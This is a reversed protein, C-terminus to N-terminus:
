CIPSLNNFSFVNDEKDTAMLEKINEHCTFFLIQHGENSIEKLLNIAQKTRAIDFNVFTDDLIFPFAHEKSWISAVAFRLSLYLQEITAQSLEKPYYRVGDKHEVMLTQEEKPDLINVYNGDTLMNFYRTAVNLVNPLKVDRYYLLTKELLQHATQIFAWRKAQNTLKAKAIEYQQLVESYTSGNELVKISEELQSQKKYLERENTRLQELLQSIEKKREVWDSEKYWDEENFHYNVFYQHLQGQLDLLKKEYDTGLQYNKEKIRFAEEDNVEAFTYLQQKKELLSRQEMELLEWENELEMKSELLQTEKVINEELEKQKTALLYFIDSDTEVKVNLSKELAKRNDNWRYLEVELAKKRERLQEFKEVTSKLLSAKDFAEEMYVVPFSKFYCKELWIQWEQQVVYQQEEWQEYQEIIRDYNKENQQFQLKEKMLIQLIHEDELLKKEMHTVEERNFKVEDVQAKLSVVSERLKEREELLVSASDGKFQWFFLFVAVLLSIGTVVYQQQIFTWVALLMLLSIVSYKMATQKKKNEENRNKQMKIQTDINGIMKEHLEIEQELKSNQSNMIREKYRNREEETLMKGKLEKITQESQEVDEKVKIFQEDLRTKQEEMRLQKQVLDRMFAKNPLSADWSIIETHKREEWNLDMKLRSITQTLEELSIQVKEYENKAQEYEGKGALFTEIERKHTKVKDDIKLTRINGEIEELRKNLKDKKTHLSALQINLQELRVRGDAPFPKYPPLSSIITKLKNKELLMPTIAVMTEVKSQEAQLAKLELQVNKIQKQIEKVERQLNDYDTLKMKWQKVDHNLEKLVVLQENIIPKRGNRKFLAESDKELTQMIKHIHDSGIFGSSFLYSGLQDVDTLAINQIDMINFSFVGKYLSKEMGKLIPQIDTSTSGDNYFVTVEGAAKGAVREIKVEGFESTDLLLSGGYQMGRKPEYRLETQNKLPFGFLIAQIFAMITSKGAENEGLFLQIKNSLGDIQIDQLKGFGYIHIEKIIMRIVEKGRTNKYYDM